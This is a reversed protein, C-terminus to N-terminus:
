YPTMRTRCLGRILTPPGLTAGCGLTAQKNKYFVSDMRVFFYCNFDIITNM